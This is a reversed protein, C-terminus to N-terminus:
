KKNAIKDAMLVANYANVIKGSVSIDSLQVKEDRTGPKIVNFNILRGSNILIHKVQSATLNPYYSRILAAIGAVAPSAMSTGSMAEYKNDPITSYINVGPAFIDVNKKGYNTFPALLRENYNSNIAGVTLFNDSIENIFDKTDAPYSRKKDIDKRDNGAAIVILVDQKEAYKIADFVWEKKPSVSKGFSANIIKAGNDVAYRIALAVDKDYEDGDPVTRVAMIKVNTAVGDMGVDNNISAGIIGSVHTGHSEKAVSPESNNNGYIKTTFDNANNNLVARYNTKLFDGNIIAENVDIKENFSSLIDQLSTFGSGKFKQIYSVYRLLDKSKTEIKSIDDMTYQKGEFYTDTLKKSDEIFQITNAYGQNRVIARKKKKEIINKATTYMETNVLSSDKYIRDYEYHEKYIDGLFNWGNIDDIYGNKDDDIGNGKIEDENIWAVDKLDEHKLNIGSDIVGVIVTTSKKDKLFDYAKATSMGPITDSELDAHMWSQQQEKTLKIKKPPLNIARSGNLIPKPSTAKSINKTTGCGVLSTVFLLAIISRTLNM